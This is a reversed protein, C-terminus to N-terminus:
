AVSKCNDPHAWINNACAEPWAIKAHVKGHNQRLYWMLYLDDRYLTKLTEMIKAPFSRLFENTQPFGGERSQDNWWTTNQFVMDTSINEGHPSNRPLSNRKERLCDRLMHEMEDIVRRSVDKQGKLIHKILTIFADSWHPDEMCFMHFRCAGSLPDALVSLPMQYGIPMDHIDLFHHETVFRVYQVFTHPLNHVDLWVRFKRYNHLNLYHWQRKLVHKDFFTSVMRHYPNRVMMIVHGVPTETASVYRFRKRCHIQHIDMVVPENVLYPNLIVHIRLFIDRMTTCM